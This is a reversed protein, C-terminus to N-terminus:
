QRPHQRLAEARLLFSGETVVRDGPALGALVEFGEKAPAGLSVTRQEFQSEAGDVPIFVVIKSGIRQVAGAPVIPARRGVSTAFDMDAYMGLRLMRDKNEVIVRVKATRTQPDVRPDIYDVSGRYARQPYAPMTIVARSGVRVMAFDDELLSGEIWVTSLDAVKFLEQGMAVVQGLNMSRTLVVGDIPAPVTVESTVAAGSRVQDAQARTMGLLILKQRAQEIHANHLQHEAEVEELEQQSAAGLKVLERMRVLKKHVVELDADMGILATQADAVEQSFIRAMKQGRRVPEGLEVAAERVIGGAVPTVPVERYGNVAVTGPARISKTEVASGVEAFRLGMREVSGSPISVVIAEVAPRGTEPSRSVPAPPTLVPAAAPRAARQEMFWAGGAVGAVLSIAATLLMRGPGSGRERMNPELM